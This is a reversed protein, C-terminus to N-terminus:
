KKSKFREELVKIVAEQLNKLDKEIKYIKLKKNLNDPIDLQIKM